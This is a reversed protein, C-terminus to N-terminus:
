LSGYGDDGGGSGGGLERGSIIFNAMSESRLNAVSEGLLPSLVSLRSNATVEEETFDEASIEPKLCWWFGFSSVMYDRQISGDKGGTLILELGEDLWGLVVLLVAFGSLVWLVQVDNQMLLQLYGGHGLCMATTVGVVTLTMFTQILYAGVFLARDRAAIPVRKLHMSKIFMTSLLVAAFGGCVLQKAPGPLAAAAALYSHTLLSLGAGMVTTSLLLTFQGLNFCLAATRNILLAHDTALTSSDDVYLLKICFLMLCSAGIFSYQELNPTQFEFFDTATVVVSQLMFGLLLIFL